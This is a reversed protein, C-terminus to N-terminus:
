DNISMSTAWGIVAGGMGGVLFLPIIVAPSLIASANGTLVLPVALSLYFIVGGAILGDTAGGQRWAVYVGVLSGFVAGATGGIALGLAMSGFGSGPAGQLTGLVGGLVYIILQLTIMMIAGIAAGYKFGSKLYEKWGQNAAQEKEYEDMAIEEPTRPRPRMGFPDTSRTVPPPMPATEVSQGDSASAVPQPPAWPNLPDPASVPSASAEVGLVHDLHSTNLEELARFAAEYDADLELAQEWAARAGNEDGTLELAKGLNYCTKPTPELTVSQRMEEIGEETRGVMCHATGLTALYKADQRGLAEVHSLIECAKDAHGTKLASKAQMIATNVAESTAM